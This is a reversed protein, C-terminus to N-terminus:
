ANPYVEPENLAKVMGDRLTELRDLIAVAEFVNEIERPWHEPSVFENYPFVTEATDRLIELAYIADGDLQGNLNPRKRGVSFVISGHRPGYGYEHDERQDGFGAYNKVGLYKLSLAVEPKAQIELIATEIVDLREKSKGPRGVIELQSAGRRFRDMDIKM